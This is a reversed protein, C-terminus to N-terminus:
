ADDWWRLVRLARLTIWRSPRGDGDEMVFPVAGRHTNELPWPGAATHRSRVLEIAEGARPDPEAGWDRLHDLARLVDYHWYTPFSLRQYAPDLIEGTSRRRMLGRALLYEHAADIAESADLPLAGAHRRQAALAELAILTSPFSSRNSVERPECNWGGDGRRDAVLRAAPATMDAGFYAGALIATSLTCAEDEGELFPRDGEEWRVADFACSAASRVATADPDVGMHVLLTLVHATSTWPQGDIPDGGPDRSGAPFWAGGAWSGDPQQLALLREGWGERAVRSREAAVHDPDADLLDRMVQWRIAPDGELLWDIVSM